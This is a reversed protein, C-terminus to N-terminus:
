GDYGSGKFEASPLETRKDALNTAATGLALAGLVDSTQSFAQAFEVSYISVFFSAVQAAIAVLYIGLRTKPYNTLM